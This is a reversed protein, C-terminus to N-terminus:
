KSTQTTESKTASVNDFNEVPEGGHSHGHNSPM